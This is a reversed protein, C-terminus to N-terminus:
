HSVLEGPPAVLGLAVAVSHGYATLERLQRSLVSPPAPKIIGLGQLDKLHDEIRRGEDMLEDCEIYFVNRALMVSNLPRASLLGIICRLPLSKRVKKCVDDFEKAEALASAASDLLDGLLGWHMALPTAPYARKKAACSLQTAQEASLHRLVLAHAITVTLRKLEVSDVVTDIQLQLSGVLEGGSPEEMKLGSSM